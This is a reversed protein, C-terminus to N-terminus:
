LMRNKVFEDIERVKVHLKVLMIIFQINQERVDQKRERTMELQRCGQKQQLWFRGLGSHVIIDHIMLMKRRLGIEPEENKTGDRTEGEQRGQFHLGIEQRKNRISYPSMAVGDQVTKYGIFLISRFFEKSLTFSHVQNMMPHNLRNPEFFDTLFSHSRCSHTLHLSDSHQPRQQLVIFPRHHEIRARNKRNQILSWSFDDDDITIAIFGTARNEGAM